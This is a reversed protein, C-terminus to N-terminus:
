DTPVLLSSKLREVQDVGIGLESLYGDFSGYLEDVVSLGHRYYEETVGLVADSLFVSSGDSTSERGQGDGDSWIDSLHARLPAIAANSALYDTLIDQELVGAARLVTAITWGARDKGAACHVLVGGSGDSVADVVRRIAVKAGALSPFSTYARMMYQLQADADVVNGLEHPAREGKHNEYPTSHVRVSSPVRDRGARDIESQGRLDVVHRVGTRVLMNEGESDLRSLESSRFLRGRRVERGDATRAGGVDRFNWAGSLRFQDTSEISAM